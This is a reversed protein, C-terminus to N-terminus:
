KLGKASVIKIIDGDSLEHNEGLRKGTRADVAHIFTDALDTHIKGAFEKATTGRRVL